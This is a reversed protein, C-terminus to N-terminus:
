ICRFSDGVPLLQQAVACTLWRVALRGWSPWITNNKKIISTRLILRNGGTAAFLRHFRASRSRTSFRPPLAFLILSTALLDWRVQPILRHEVYSVLRM